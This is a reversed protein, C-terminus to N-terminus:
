AMSEHMGIRPIFNLVSSKESDFKTGYQGSHKIGLNRLM